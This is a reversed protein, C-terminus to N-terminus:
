LRNLVLGYQSDMFMKLVFHLRPEFLHINIESKM